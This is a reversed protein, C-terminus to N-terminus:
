RVQDEPFDRFFTDLVSDWQTVSRLTPSSEWLDVFQKAQALLNFESERKIREAFFSDPQLFEFNDMLNQAPDNTSKKLKDELRAYDPSDSGLYLRWWRGKEYANPSKLYESRYSIKDFSGPDPELNDTLTRIVKKVIWLNSESIRQSHARSKSTAFRSNQQKKSAVADPKIDFTTTKGLSQIPRPDSKEPEPTDNKAPLKQEAEKAEKKRAEEAEKEKAEEAKIDEEEGYFAGTASDAFDIEGCEPM